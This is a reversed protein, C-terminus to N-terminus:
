SYNYALSLMCPLDNAVCISVLINLMLLCVVAVAFKM